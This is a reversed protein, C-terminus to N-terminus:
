PASGEPKQWTIRDSNYHMVIWPQGRGKELGRFVVDDGDKVEVTGADADSKVDCGQEYLLGVRETVQAKTM